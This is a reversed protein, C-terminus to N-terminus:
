PKIIEIEQRPFPISLGEKKAAKYVSSIIQDNIILIEEFDDVFFKLGYNIVFDDMSLVVAIPPPNDLVKPNQIAINLLLQKAKEPADDYSFGFTILKAHIKSPRSLNKIKEKGLLNNPLIIQENFQTHIKVSRWSIASIKGLDDGVQIWDGKKFPNAMLLSVGNFLNGLPEQL